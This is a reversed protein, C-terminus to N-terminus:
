RYSFRSVKIDYRTVLAFTSRAKSAAANEDRFSNLNQPNKVLPLTFCIWYIQWWWDYVDVVLPTTWLSLVYVDIKKSFWTQLGAGGGLPTLLIGLPRSKDPPKEELCRPICHNESLPIWSPTDMLPSFTIAIVLSSWHNLYQTQLGRRYPYYKYYSWPM